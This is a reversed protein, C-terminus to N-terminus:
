PSALIAQNIQKTLDGTRKGATANSLRRVFYKETGTDEAILLKRVADRTSPM